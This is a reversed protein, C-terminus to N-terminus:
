DPDRADLLERLEGPTPAPTGTVYAVLRRDGPSDERVIAVAAGVQPHGSLIASLEGLEIRHGRLKVQDDARGLFEIIGGDLWRVQDGTRYLREGGVTVFREATLEPRKWYGLALGDGGIHLEGDIVQVSTRAIPAGIPISTLGAPLALPRPIRYCCAFTTSETPGYGNVLQTGPLLDLARRVHPVSLAEGGTLLERVTALISPQEDVILNFLSATLWLHTVDHARLVAGLETLDPVGCAPYLVCTGGNLLPGWIELTSADFSLPALQLFVTQADLPTFHNGIVLRTIGRQPIAVGKPTGTSGSTFMVYALDEATGRPLDARGNGTAGLEPAVTVTQGGHSPLRPLSDADALVVRPAIDDLLFRLRQAPYAPDLPVYGARAKLAGLMAVVTEITRGMFLGVCDGPKVGLGLLEHALATSRRDLEAYTLTTGGPMILAARDPTAKARQHFLDAVTVADHETTM